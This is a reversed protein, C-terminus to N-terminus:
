DKSTFALKKKGIALYGRDLIRDAVYVGDKYDFNVLNPKGDRIEYLTPTEEPRAQIYTFKDDRYMARVFFPAKGAEFHYPFRVNSIFTTIGSDIAKQAAQKVERTEDRAIEVQRRYNEVEDASVFRPAKKAADVMSEESPEVFIKLDPQAEPTASVEVLLFSFINGSATILNMNTHAGAKAPKVYAFNESGDVVWFEKDGITFDLIRETPPLVILTTYRLKTNVTALDKRGYSVVKAQQIPAEVEKPTPPASGESKSAPARKPRKPTEAGFASGAFLLSLLLVLSCPHRLINNM